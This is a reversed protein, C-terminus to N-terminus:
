YVLLYPAFVHSTGIDNGSLKLDTLRFNTCKTVLARTLDSGGKEGIQNGDLNIYKLTRPCHESLLGESLALAGENRFNNRSLILHQLKRLCGMRLDMLMSSILKADKQQSFAVMNIFPHSSYIYIYATLLFIIKRIM